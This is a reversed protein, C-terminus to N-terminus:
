ILTLILFFDCNIVFFNSWFVFLYFFFFFILMLQVVSPCRIRCIHSLIDHSISCVAVVIFKIKMTTHLCSFALISKFIQSWDECCWLHQFVVFNNICNGILFFDQSSHSPVSIHRESLVRIKQVARKLSPYSGLQLQSGNMKHSTRKIHLNDLSGERSM